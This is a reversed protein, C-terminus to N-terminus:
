WGACCGTVHCVCGETSLQRLSPLDCLQILCLCPMIALRNTQYLEAVQGLQSHTPLNLAHVFGASDCGRSPQQVSHVPAGHPGAYRSHPLWAAVPVAQQQTGPHPQPISFLMVLDGSSPKVRAIYTNTPTTLCCVGEGVRWSGDQLWPVATRHMAPCTKYTVVVCWCQHIGPGGGVTSHSVHLSCVAVVKRASLVDSCVAHV